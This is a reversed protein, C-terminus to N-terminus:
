VGSIESTNMSVPSRRRRRRDSVRPLELCSARRWPPTKRKIELACEFVETMCDTLAAAGCADALCCPISNLLESVCARLFRIALCPHRPGRALIELPGWGHRRHVELFGWASSRFVPGLSRRLRNKEIRSPPGPEFFGISSSTQARRTGDFSM